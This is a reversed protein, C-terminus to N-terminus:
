LIPRVTILVPKSSPYVAPEATQRPKLAMSAAFAPVLTALIVTTLRM